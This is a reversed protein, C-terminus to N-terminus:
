VIKDWNIKNAGKSFQMTNYNKNVEALNTEKLRKSFAKRGDSKIETKNTEDFPKLIIKRCKEDNVM